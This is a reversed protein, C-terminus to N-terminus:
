VTLFKFATVAHYEEDKKVITSPFNEHHLADPFYQTEFCVADRKNYEVFCKGAENDLWNATYMQIGPLDTYVEMVIGSLDGEAQAVKVFEGNNKLVWNNDYGESLRVAEYESDIEEGLKKPIRFDMPTGTVEVFEGTPISEEDNKTYYDANITVTHNLIDGCEHGNLNFYSHNTMNFVTDETAKGYYSIKLINDETLEYTVKAVAKGPFGQDGDQSILALTIFNKNKAIVQWVRKNYGDSGSHLNNGYQNAELEYAKGSIEVSAGGIRNANRGITAGFYVTGNEYGTVDNYGLVVDRRYGDKDPVLLYVLTAGYESVAAAMGAENEMVYIHMEQGDKTTGFPHKEMWKM